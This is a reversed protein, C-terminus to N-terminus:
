PWRGRWAWASGCAAAFTRGAEQARAGIGAPRSGPATPSSRSSTKTTTFTRHERPGFAVNDHDDHQRVPGGNQFLFGFRLRRKTLEHEDLKPWTEATSRSRRRADSAASRDHAKLLVTKGCGSEGIVGLTQGRPVRSTSIACARDASRFRM